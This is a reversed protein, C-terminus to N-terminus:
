VNVTDGIYQPQVLLVKDTMARGIVVIVPQTPEPTIGGNTGLYYLRGPVLGSFVEAEGTAIVDVPKGAEVVGDVIGYGSTPATQSSSSDAKVWQGSQNMFVVTGPLLSEGSVQRSIVGVAALENVFNVVDHIATRFDDLTELPGVTLRRMLADLQEETTPPTPPVSPIVPPVPPLVVADGSSWAGGATASGSDPIEEFVLFIRWPM